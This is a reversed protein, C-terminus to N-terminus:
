ARSEELKKISEMADIMFNRAKDENGMAMYLEGLYLM